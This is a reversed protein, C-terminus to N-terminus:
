FWQISPTISHFQLMFTECLRLPAFFFLIGSRRQTEAVKRSGIYESKVACRM